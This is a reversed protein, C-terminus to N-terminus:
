GAARTLFIPGGVVEFRGPAASRVATIQMVPLGGAVKGLRSGQPIALRPRQEAPLSGLARRVQPGQALFPLPESLASLPRSYLGVLWYRDGRSVFAYAAHTHTPRMLNQWHGASAKLRQVLHGARVPPGRHYALNESPSGITTRGVLWLRHSPDFGEPSLHEVYGRQALDGAHARAASALEDHWALSPAGGEARLRNTLDFAARAGADDFRGGGADARRERLRSEYGTWADVDTAAPAADRAEDALVPGACAALGAALVTRRRLSM